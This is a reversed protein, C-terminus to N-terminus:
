IKPCKIRYFGIGSNKKIYKDVEIGDLKMQDIDYAKRPACRQIWFGYSTFNGDDGFEIIQSKLAKKREQAAKEVLDHDRYENLLERLKPDEIIIYDDESPPPPIGMQVLRWFDLAKEKMEKQLTPQAFAEIIICSNYRYDWIAFFARIPKCLMIQWQIQHQWYLPLKFNNRADNLIEEKVPCKIECLTKSTSDYGDLSAKFFSNEIDEICLPELKFQQNKNIWERAIPENKIGHAMAPNIEDTSRFGCKEDWLQLPTKFKNSKMLVSIDSAGLGNRRWDLWEKGSQEIFSVVKM